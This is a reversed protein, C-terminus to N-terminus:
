ARTLRMPLSTLTRLSNNPKWVPDGTLEITATTELLVSLFTMMESRALVHGVCIHIGAGFALHGTPNRDVRFVDADDGFREPDTNAAGLACLVKTGEAVPFGAIETDVAATRAFATVPSDLRLAEEVCSKVLNPDAQLRAWADPQAGLHALLGGLGGVTTDVGATLLSRVLLGAEEETIKEEDASAYVAAGLGGPTLRERACAAMTWPVFDTATAMADTRLRNEPGIANFVMNSYDLLHGPNVDTMGVAAPFAQCPYAQALMPVADFEEGDPVEAILRRATDAFSAELGEVVSRSMAGALVRRSRNHDPPDVELIISKPRFPEVLSFDDLGVGRSSVFQAHDVFVARTEEYRGVALVNYKPIHAV